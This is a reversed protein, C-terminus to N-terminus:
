EEIVELYLKKAIQLEENTIDDKRNSGDKSYLNLVYAVDECENVIAIVRFGSAEGRNNQPNIIRTKVLVIYKGKECESYEYKADYKKLNLAAEIEQLVKDLSIHNKTLFKLDRKMNFPAIDEFLDDLHEQTYILNV